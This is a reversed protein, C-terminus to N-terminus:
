NLANIHCHPCYAFMIIKIPKDPYAAQVPFAWVVLCCLLLTRILQIPKQM